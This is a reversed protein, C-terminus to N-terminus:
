GTAADGHMTAYAHCAVGNYPCYNCWNSPQAPWEREAMLRGLMGLVDGWAATCYDPSLEIVKTERHELFVYTFRMRLAITDAAIRQFVEKFVYRMVIPPVEDVWVGGTKYDIIDVYQNGSEDMRVMILDPKTSITLRTGAPQWPIERERKREVELFIADRDLTDLGYQVWRMVQGTAAERAEMSPFWEPKLSTFARQYMEDQSRLPAGKRLRHASEALLFHAVNGQTLFLNTTGSRPAKDLYQLRLQNPCNTYNKLKSPTIWLTAPWAPGAATVERDNPARENVRAALWASRM